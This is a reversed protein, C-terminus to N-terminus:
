QAPRWQNCGNTLIREPIAKSWKMCFPAADEPQTYDTCARCIMDPIKMDHHIVTDLGERQQRQIWHECLPWADDEILWGIQEEPLRQFYAQADHGGIAKFRTFFEHPSLM